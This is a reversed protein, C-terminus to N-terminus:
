NPRSRRVRVAVYQTNPLVYKRVEVEASRLPYRSLLHSALESAITEILKWERGIVLERTSRCIEVYNITQTIDENLEDFGLRPWVTVSITLRQPRSREDEGVGVRADLELQEAHISDSLDGLDAVSTATM